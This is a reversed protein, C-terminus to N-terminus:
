RRNRHPPRLPERTRLQATGSLRNATVNFNSEDALGALIPLWEPSRPFSDVFLTILQEDSITAGTDTADKYLARIKEAYGGNGTIGGGTYRCNHLADEKRKRSSKSVVMFEKELHSWLDSSTKMTGLGLANPSKINSWLTLYAVLERIPYELKNPNPGNVAT